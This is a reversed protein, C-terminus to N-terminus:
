SALSNLIIAVIGEIVTQIKSVAHFYPAFNSKDLWTCAVVVKLISFCNVDVISTCSGHIIM